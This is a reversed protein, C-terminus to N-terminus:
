AVMEMSIKDHHLYKSIWRIGGLNYDEMKEHKNIIEIRPFAFPTREIQRLLPEKHSEYIHANGIFYVFEDAILDCHKALIHTLFSYSAINFPVGLGVDGSRQYLSCSLRNNKRVNFQVLVHCPPLAMEDLQCPNWASMIIRRSFRQEKDKLMAVVNMLQDIGQGSYDTSCNKYPANFHRWQHGYIPGLDNDGIVDNADWIHVRMENLKKNDTSGSIFWQLEKFCTKWSVQKTTLLPLTGDILSFRMSHGFVSYTNGNRGTQYDGDNIIKRVLESYQNEELMEM